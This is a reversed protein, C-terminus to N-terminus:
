ALVTTIHLISLFRRCPLPGDIIHGFFWTSMYWIPRPSYMCSPIDRVLTINLGPVGVLTTRLHSVLSHYSIAATSLVPFSFWIGELEFVQYKWAKFYESGM